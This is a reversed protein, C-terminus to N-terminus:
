HSALIDAAYKIRNDTACIGCREFQDQFIILSDYVTNTNKIRAGIGTSSLEKMLFDLQSEISLYSNPYQNILNLRRGGTWQAIGLGGPVDSTNFRHEQMLNGMIGATQERTFGNRILFDWTLKENISPPNFVGKAGVVEIQEIPELTTISNLEKRSIEQGNKIDIEYVVTRKGNAGEVEVKRYISDRNYDYKKRVKYPVEEEVTVEQKGERWIELRMGSTIKSTLDLNLRDSSALKIDKEALYESITTKQTRATTVKGYFVFDFSTARRVVYEIGSGIGGALNYNIRSEVLDEPYLEIGAARLIQEPAEYPTMVKIRMLGDVITVPKSRYININFDESSIESDLGPEVADTEEIEIEAQKLVERVTKKDTVLVTKEGRDFISVFKKDNSDALALATGVFVTLLSLLLAYFVSKKPLYVRLKNGLKSM